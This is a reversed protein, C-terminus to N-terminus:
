LTKLLFDRAKSTIVNSREYGIIVAVVLINGGVTVLADKSVRKPKEAEKLAHLKTLQDVMQAYEESESTYGKLESLLEDIANELGTKERRPAPKFM